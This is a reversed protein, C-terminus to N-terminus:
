KLYKKVKLVAIREDSSLDEVTEISLQMKKIKRYLKERRVRFKQSKKRYIRQVTQFIQYTIMKMLWKIPSLESM